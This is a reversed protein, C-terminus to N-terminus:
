REPLSLFKAKHKAPLYDVLGSHVSSWQVKEATSNYAMYCAYISSYEGTQSIKKKDVYGFFAQTFFSQKTKVPFRKEGGEYKSPNAVWFLWGEALKKGYDYLKAHNTENECTIYVDIKEGIQSYAPAHHIGALIIFSLKILTKM